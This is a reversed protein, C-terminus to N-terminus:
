SVFMGLLGDKRIFPKLQQWTFFYKGDPELAQIVHPFGYDYYFTVGKDSVAFENLEAVTFKSEGFLDKTDIDSAEPDAKIASIAKKIEASQSRRAMAALGNLDTFVDLPKVLQGNHLDIVVTKSQGDPYAGSGDMSLEISLIWNKNYGVVYDAEHLWQFEGIEEKINLDLVASYSIAREIKRSLAATRAKVVPYRITFTKKYESIPKPRTYVAVKTKIVVSQAVATEALLALVLVCFAVLTKM